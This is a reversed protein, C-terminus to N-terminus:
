YTSSGTAAAFVVVLVVLIYLIALVGFGTGIWGLVRGVTADAGARRAKNAYHIAMPGFVIGITVLALIGFLMAYQADKAGPAPQLAPAYYGPAYGPTATQGSQLPPYQGGQAYPPPAPYPYQQGPHPEPIDQSM